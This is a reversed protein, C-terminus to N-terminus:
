FYPILVIIWRYQRSFFCFFLFFFLSIFSVHKEVKLFSFFLVCLVSWLCVRVDCKRRKQIHNINRKRQTRQKEKHKRETHEFFLFLFLFSTIVWVFMSVVVAVFMFVLDNTYSLTLCEAGEYTREKTAHEWAGDVFSWSKKEKWMM